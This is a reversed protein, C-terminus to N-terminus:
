GRFELNKKYDKGKSCSSRNIPEELKRKVDELQKNLKLNLEQWRDAPFIDRFKQLMWEHNNKILMYVYNRMDEKYQEFSMSLEEKLEKADKKTFYDTM